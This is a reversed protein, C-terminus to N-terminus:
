AGTRWPSLWRETEAWLREGDGQQDKLARTGKPTGRSFYVDRAGRETVHRLTGVLESASREPTIGMIVNMIQVVLRMPQPENALIKTKVLGPMFINLPVSSRDKFHRSFVQMAWQWRGLAKGSSYGKSQTPDAFDLRDLNLGVVTLVQAGPTQKLLGELEWLLLVRGLYGIAFNSEFGDPTLVREQTIANANLVLADLRGHQSRFAAAMRQVEAMKSLDAALYSVTASGAAARLEEVVAQCRGPNRGTIVVEWGETLLRLAAAKGIGDTAGTVLATRTPSPSPSM